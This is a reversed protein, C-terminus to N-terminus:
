SILDLPLLYRFLQVRSLKQKGELLVVKVASELRRDGRSRTYILMTVLLVIDWSLQRIAVWVLWKLWAWLSSKRKNYEKRLELQERLAAVEATMKTLAQEIRKRWRRNRKEPDVGVGGYQRHHSSSETSGKEEEEEDYPINRAEQFEEEDEEEDDQIDEADDDGMDPLTEYGQRRLKEEPQSIPSLVRLRSDGAIDNYRPRSVRSGYIDYGTSPQVHSSMALAQGPSSSSSSPNSKIQDWLFELESILEQAEPTPSAYRHMTEVLTTIYRRKAETRSLNHQAHWTDWKEKEAQVDPGEGIPRDMVDEVNGEMSQKYLGYLQLRDAPPPRASGTRPIKKVTHLAHVFVRDVSDSM